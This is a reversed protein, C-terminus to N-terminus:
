ITPQEQDILVRAPDPGDREENWGCTPAAQRSCDKMAVM